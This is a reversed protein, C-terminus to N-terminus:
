KVYSARKVAENRHIEEARAVVDEAEELPVVVVGDDDGVLVDGPRVCVGGVAIPVLLKGPGNKYPGAPSSGRAFVPLAMAGLDKADRVAGDIVYGALDRVKARTGMLEGVLARSADGGGNVVIVDGASALDIAQHVFLNDGSRTWVTFASGVLRAGPWMAHIGPDIIGLREMADGINAVPLARLRGLLAPAARPFTTDPRPTAATANSISM